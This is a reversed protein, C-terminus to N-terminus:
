TACSAAKLFLKPRHQDSRRYDSLARLAAEIAQQMTMTEGGSLNSGSRPHTSRNTTVRAVFSIIFALCATFDAASTAARTKDAVAPTAVVSGPQFPAEGTWRANGGAAVLGERVPELPLLM